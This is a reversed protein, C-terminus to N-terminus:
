TGAAFLALLYLPQLCRLTDPEDCAVIAEQAEHVLHFNREVFDDIAPQSMINSLFLGFEIYRHFVDRNPLLQQSEIQRKVRALDDNGVLELNRCRLVRSARIARDRRYQSLTTVQWPYLVLKVDKQHLLNTFLRCTLYVSIPRPSAIELEFRNFRDLVAGNLAWRELVEPLQEHHPDYLVMNDLVGWREAHQEFLTEISFDTQMIQCFSDVNFHRHVQIRLTNQAHFVPLGENFIQQSLRFIHAAHRLFIRTTGRRSDFRSTALATRHTLARKWIMTRIEAPLQLLRSATQPHQPFTFPM